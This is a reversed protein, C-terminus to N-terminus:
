GNGRLAEEAVAVHVLKDIDFCIEPYESDVVAVPVRLIREAKAIVQELSLQPIGLRGCLVGWILGVGLLAALQVPNKRAAFAASVRPGEEELFRRSMCFLNGGSYAGGRLSILTRKEGTSGEQLRDGRVVSYCLEAGSDLARRAFDDVAAPTLLPMDSTCTLCRDAEPVRAFGAQITDLIGGGTPRAVVVGEPLAAVVAELETVVVVQGVSEARQLAEVVWRVVPKGAVLALAKHPLGLARAVEEPKRGGALVIAPVTESM